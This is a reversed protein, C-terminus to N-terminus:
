RDTDRRPMFCGTAYYERWKIPLENPNFYEIRIGLDHLRDYGVAECCETLHPSALDSQITHTLIMPNLPTVRTVLMEIM